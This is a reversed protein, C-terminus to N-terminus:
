DLLRILSKSISTLQTYILRELEKSSILHVREDKEKLLENSFGRKSFLVIKQPKINLIDAKDLLKHLEKKNVKHNTWKCEGIYIEGDRTTCFLDIEVDKDWYSGSEYIESGLETAFIDNIYIDSLEEFTFGIFSNLHQSIFQLSSTFDRRAISPAFPEIFAFWFRVFPSHFRYKHSIKHREIEKKFKQKPHTRLPPTEKSYEKHIYHHAILYRLYNDGRTAGIRSRKFASHSRRDGRSIATLLKIMKEDYDLPELLTARLNDFNHFIHELLLEIIHKDTDIDIDLGGFISFLELCQEMDCPLNRNYFDSFLERYM